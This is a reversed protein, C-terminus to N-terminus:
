ACSSWMVGAGGVCCRTSVGMPDQSPSPVGVVAVWHGMPSISLLSWTGTSSLFASAKSSFAAV